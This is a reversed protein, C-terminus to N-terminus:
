LYRHFGDDDDDHDTREVGLPVYHGLSLDLNVCRKMNMFLECSHNDNM